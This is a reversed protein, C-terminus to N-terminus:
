MRSRLEMVVSSIGDLTTFSPSAIVDPSITISYTQELFTILELVGASDIIGEDWLHLTRLKPRIRESIFFRECVFSELTAAIAEATDTLGTM